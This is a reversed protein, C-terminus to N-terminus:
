SFPLNKECPVLAFNYDSLHTSSSNLGPHFVNHVLWQTVMVSYQFVFQNFVVLFNSM